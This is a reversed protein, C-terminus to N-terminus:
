PVVIPFHGCNTARRIQAPVKATFGKDPLRPPKVAGVESGLM